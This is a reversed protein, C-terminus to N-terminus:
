NLNAWTWYTYKSGLTRGGCYEYLELLFAFFYIGLLSKRWGQKQEKSDAKNYGYLTSWFSFSIDTAASLNFYKVDWLWLWRMGGGNTGRRKGRQSFETSRSASSDLWRRGGGTLQLQTTTSSSCSLDSISGSLAEKRRLLRSFPLSHECVCLSVCVEQATTATVREQGNDESKLASHAPSIRRSYEEVWLIFLFGIYIYFFGWDTVDM